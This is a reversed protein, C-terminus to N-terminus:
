LPLPLELSLNATTERLTLFQGTFLLADWWFHTFISQGLTWNNKRTLYGLYYGIIAQPFPYRNKSSYHALGFLTAQLGNALIWTEGTYQYALPLLYGRFLAEESVGANYALTSSFVGDDWSFLWNSNKHSLRQDIVIYGIAGTLLGLPISSTPKALYSLQFPAKFLNGLPEQNNLFLYKKDERQFVPVASRFTSYASMFGAGQYALSGLLIKRVPWSKVGDTPGPTRGERYVSDKRLDSNGNVALFIGGLAAGSYALWSMEGQFCQGFGPLFVSPIPLFLDSKIKHPLPEVAKVGESDSQAM